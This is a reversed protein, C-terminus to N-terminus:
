LCCPADQGLKILFNRYQETVEFERIPRESLCQHLCTVKTEDLREENPEQAQCSTRDTGSPADSARGDETPGGEAPGGEAPGGEAPGGM